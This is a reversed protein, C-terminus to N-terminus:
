ENGETRQEEWMALKWLPWTLVWFLKQLAEYIYTFLKM